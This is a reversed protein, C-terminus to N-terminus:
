AEDPGADAPGGAGGGTDDDGTDDDGTDDGVESAEEEPLHAVSVIRESEDIRFLTVGRTTRGAIRIDEVPSRILKGADTVLMIQDGPAVPFAAVVGAERGVARTLDLNGIGQGGRGTLRYEYASTRKGYGDDAVSLIFQETAALEDLRQQSLEAGGDGGAAESDGNEGRRRANAYRLYADREETSEAEGSRLISMSIVRDGGRDGQALKIGRVGTSTRGAFVRVDSVSFRICKGGATALLVDNEETCPQVAVLADGGEELKMAIKGNAAV